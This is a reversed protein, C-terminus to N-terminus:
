ADGKGAAAGRKGGQLAELDGKLGPNHASAYALYDRLTLLANPEVEAQGGNTQRAQIAPENQEGLVSSYQLLIIIVAALTASIGARMM